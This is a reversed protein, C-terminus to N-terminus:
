LQAAQHFHTIAYQTCKLPFFVGFGFVLVFCFVQSEGTKHCQSTGNHRIHASDETDYYNHNISYKCKKHGILHNVYAWLQQSVEGCTKLVILIYIFKRPLRFM